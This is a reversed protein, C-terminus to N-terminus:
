FKIVLKIEEKTGASRTVPAFSESYILKGSDRVLDPNKILLYNNCTALAGSTNGIIVNSGAQFNNVDSVDSLVLVPFVNNITATSGLGNNITHSGGFDRDQSVSTLKLYTSNAFTCIGYANTTTDTITQGVTFLSSMSSVVLDKEYTSSIIRGTALSIEQQVYENDIFAGTNATLTIRSTHNFRDGFSFSVDKTGNATYIAGVTAYANTINDYMVDGTAFQGAVNSLIVQSNSILYTIEGTAGSTTQSIIQTNSDTTVDFYITNASTVFATTNSYVGVIGNFASNMTFSGAVSKLQLFSSNGYVVIGSASVNSLPMIPYAADINANASNAILRHGILYGATFIHGNESTVSPVLTIRTNSAITSKLAIHTANAFQIYYQGNNSLGGIATNGASVKYTILNNATLTAANSGIAITNNSTNAVGGIVNTNANFSATVSAPLTNSLTLVMATSNAFTITGNVTPTVNDYVVDGVNFTGNSVSYNIALTTNSTTQYVVEEPIWNTISANLNTTIKNTLSLNVRDFNSLTVQIDKFQPNELIGVKRYSGYSLFDYGENSITDFKVDIGVYRGGLESVADYGHGYVPSIIARGTAGGVLGVGTNSYIAINAQTYGSGPNIVDVGVIDYVSNIATNVIAIAAANSGDGIIRVTPGIQYETRDNPLDMTAVIIANGSITGTSVTKFTVPYGLRFVGYIDAIPSITINPNSQILSIQSLQSSSEGSVFFQTGGSDTLWTGLVGSLIVSSSNAYAVIGNAGQTVRGSDTMNVKEGVIFNTSIISSNTIGIKVSNLNTNSIYGNSGYVVISSPEAAVLMKYHLNNSSTNAILYTVTSNGTATGGTSNTIAINSVPINGLVFGSGTNAITFTLSGGTSNTTFTVRANTSGVIPSKITIIDTNNYGLATAGSLSIASLSGTAAFTKSFPIDVAVVTTNVNNIVRRINSTTNAGVRIYEGNAYGNASDNLQTGIGFVLQNDCYMTATATQGRINHGSESAGKTLAIRSGSISTKLAIVTSNAYEIYYSSGSSLGGIAVNGTNTTYTILDDIIFKNATALTIVNNSGSGVGATVGTNSNFTQAIPDSITITPSIFYGSGVNSVNVAAIRGTANAQANATAGIGTTGNDTITVTANTSYGSGNLVMIALNCAGTNGVSVNGTKLTGSQSVDVIPYGTLFQTNAVNKIVEIISSNSTIIKGTTGTDSQAITSDINFYGQPYLYQINDYLQEIYYGTTVTGVINALDLRIYSIFPESVVIQKSTGNSSSIERIQGAGFGSKLYISSNTYYDDTNSSTIPLQITYKNVVGGIYGSEYVFYSNGGNTIKIVDISGPTANGQVASNTSVPIYNTSTFKTNSTSDISYMYKWIYGDGTKFIGSPVTLTPKVYSTTGGNNDICKYVEYRDTVVFFQKSYLNADTQDYVDYITNSTWNYRPILNIVDGDKLLKGYLIDHYISQEVQAVSNNVALIATDDNGGSSNAWPQPRATFMYYANRNDRIDTIFGNAQNIYHNITLIAM